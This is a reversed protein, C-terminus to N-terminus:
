LFIATLYTPKHKMNRAGEGFNRSGSSSGKLRSGCSQVEINLGVAQRTVPMITACEDETRTIAWEFRHWSAGRSHFQSAAIIATLLDAPIACSPPRLSHVNCKRRCFQILCFGSQSQFGFSIDGSIWFLSVLPGSIPCTFTDALFMLFLGLAEQYINKMSSPRKTM